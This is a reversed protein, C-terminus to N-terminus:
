KMHMKKQLKKKIIHKHKYNLYLHMHTTLPTSEVNLGLLNNANSFM